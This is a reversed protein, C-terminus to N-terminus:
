FNFEILFLNNLLYIWNFSGTFFGTYIGYFDREGSIFFAFLIIIFLEKFIVLLRLFM